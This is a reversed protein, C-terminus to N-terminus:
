YPRRDETCLHANHTFSFHWVRGRVLKSLKELMKETLNEQKLIDRVREFEHRDLYWIFSENRILCFRESNHKPIDPEIQCLIYRIGKFICICEISLEDGSM